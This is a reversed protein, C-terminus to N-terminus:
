ISALIAFVKWIVGVSKYLFSVHFPLKGELDGSTQM